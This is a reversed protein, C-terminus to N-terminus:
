EAECNCEDNSIQIPQEAIAHATALAAYAKELQAYRKNDVRTEHLEGTIHAMRLAIENAITRQAQEMGNLTAHHVADALDADTWSLKTDNYTSM